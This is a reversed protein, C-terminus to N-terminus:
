EVGKLKAVNNAYAQAVKRMNTDFATPYKDLMALLTQAHQTMYEIGERLTAYKGAAPAPAAPLPETTTEAQTPGTPAPAPAGSGEPRGAGKGRTQNDGATYRSWCTAAAGYARKPDTEGKAALAKRADVSMSLVEVARTVLAVTLRSGNADGRKSAYMALARAVGGRMFAVRLARKEDDNTCANFAAHVRERSTEEAGVVDWGLIVHPDKVDAGTIVVTEKETANAM